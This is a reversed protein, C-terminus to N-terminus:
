GPRALSAAAMWTSKSATSAPSFRDIEPRLDFPDRGAGLQCRRERRDQRQRRWVIRLCGVGPPGLQDLAEWAHPREQGRQGLDDLEASHLRAFHDETSDALEGLQQASLPHPLALHHLLQHDAAPTPEHEPVRIEFCPYDVAARIREAHELLQV